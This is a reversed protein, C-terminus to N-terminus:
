CDNQEANEPKKTKIKAHSMDSGLLNVAKTVCQCQSMYRYLLIIKVTM